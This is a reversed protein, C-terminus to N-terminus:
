GAQRNALCTAVIRIDDYSTEGGLHEFVPKLPGPGVVELAEEIRRATERAVWPSPDDVRQQRLYNQLYGAVTSRARGMRQMVEDITAGARFYEFAAVASANLGGERPPPTARAEAPAPAADLEIANSRCYEVIAEVFAPGYDQRKSEGVGRVDIFAALSSPRRRAMDRLAADGFVVYPPVGRAAAMETRLGRLREFLGRDVGDWSDASAGSRSRGGSRSREAPVL